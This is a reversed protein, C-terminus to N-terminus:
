EDLLAEVVEAWEYFMRPGGNTPWKLFAVLRAKIVESPTSEALAVREDQTECERFTM